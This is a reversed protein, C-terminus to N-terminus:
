RAGVNARAPSIGVAKHCGAGGAEPMGVLGGGPGPAALQGARPRNERKPRLDPGHPFRANGPARIRACRGSLQISNPLDPARPDLVITVPGDSRIEQRVHEPAATPTLCVPKRTGANFLPHCAATWGLTLVM